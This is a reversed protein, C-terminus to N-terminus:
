GLVIEGPNTNQNLQIKDAIFAGLQHLKTDFLKGKIQVKITQDPLITNTAINEQIIVSDGIM